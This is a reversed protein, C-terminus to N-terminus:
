PKEKRNRSTQLSGTCDVHRPCAGTESHAGDRSKVRALRTTQAVDLPVM